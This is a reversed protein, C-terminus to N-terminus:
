WLPKDLKSWYM